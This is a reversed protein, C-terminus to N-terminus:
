MKVLMKKIMDTMKFKLLERQYIHDIVTTKIQVEMIFRLNFM